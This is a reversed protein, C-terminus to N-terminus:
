SFKDFFTDFMASFAREPGVAAYHLITPSKRQVADSRLFPFWVTGATFRDVTMHSEADLVVRNWAAQDSGHRWLPRVPSTQLVDEWSQCIEDFHRSKVAFTGSNIGKRGCHRAMEDESLWSNYYQATMPRGTGEQILIDWDTSPLVLKDLYLCDADIFLVADYELYPLVKRAAAKAHYAPSGSPVAMTRYNSPPHEKLLSESNTLVFFDGTNGTLNWSAYLMRSMAPFLGSGNTDMAVTYTLLKM